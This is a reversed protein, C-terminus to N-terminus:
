ELFDLKTISEAKSIILLHDETQLRYNAYPTVDLRHNSYRVGLVNVRFRNRVDLEQLTKGVWSKPVMVEIISNDEDIDVMDIISQNLLGKATEVGIEKEPRVVKDVGVKEFIQKYVKNKAKAVIFPIGLEKLNLICLLSGELNSGTAVIAVDCDGVGANELVHIDTIDGQVAEHVIDAMRSVCEMDKDIAIVECNYRALTKSVTSGFVGLGLVAFQRNKNEKMNVWWYTDMQM